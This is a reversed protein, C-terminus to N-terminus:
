SFKNSTNQSSKSKNQPNATELKVLLHPLPKLKNLKKMAEFIKTNGNPLKKFEEIAYQIKQNVCHKHLQTKRDSM